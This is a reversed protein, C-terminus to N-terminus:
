HVSPHTKEDFCRRMHIWTLGKSKKRRGTYHATSGWRGSLLLDSHHQHASSCPRESRPPTAAARVNVHANRSTLKILVNISTLSSHTHTQTLSDDLDVPSTTEQSQTLKIYLVAFFLM